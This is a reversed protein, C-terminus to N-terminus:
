DSNVRCSCFETGTGGTSGGRWACSFGTLLALGGAQEWTGVLLAGVLFMLAFVFVSLCIWLGALASVPAARRDEGRVRGWVGPPHVKSWFNKLVDPRAPRTILTVVLMAVFGVGVEVALLIPFSPPKGEWHLYLAAAGAALMGSIETWANTRWWLWRLIVPLGLGAGLSIHFKWAM